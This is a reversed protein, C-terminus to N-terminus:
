VHVHKNFVTSHTGFSDGRIACAGVDFLRFQPSTPVYNFANSCVNSISLLHEILMTNDM